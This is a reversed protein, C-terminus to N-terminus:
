RELLGYTRKRTSITLKRSAQHSSHWPKMVQPLLQVTGTAGTAQARILCDRQYGHAIL